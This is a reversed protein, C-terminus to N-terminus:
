LFTATAFQVCRRCKCSQLGSANSWRSGSRGIWLRRCLAVGPLTFHALALQRCQLCVASSLFVSVDYSTFDVDLVGQLENTVKVYNNYTNNVRKM